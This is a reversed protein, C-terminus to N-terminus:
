YEEDEGDDQDELEDIKQQAQRLAEELLAQSKAEKGTPHRTQHAKGKRRVDTKGGASESKARPKFFRPGTLQQPQSAVAARDHQVSAWDAADGASNWSRSEGATKWSAQACSEEAVMDYHMTTEGTEHAANHDEDDSEAPDDDSPSADLAALTTFSRQYRTEVEDVRQRFNAKQQKATELQKELKSIKTDVRNISKKLADKENALGQLHRTLEKRSMKNEKQESQGRGSDDAEDEVQKFSCYLAKAKDKGWLQTLFQQLLGFKAADDIPKAQVQEGGVFKAKQRPQSTQPLGEEGAANWDHAAESDYEVSDMSVADDNDDQVAEDDDGEWTESKRPLIECGCTRCWHRHSDQWAWGRCLHGFSPCPVYVRAEAQHRHQHHHHGRQWRGGWGQHWSGWQRNSSFYGEDESKRFDQGGGYWTSATPAKWKKRPAGNPMTLFKLDEYYPAQSGHHARLRSAASVVSLIVRDEARQRRARRHWAPESPSTALSRPLERVLEPSARPDLSTPAERLM